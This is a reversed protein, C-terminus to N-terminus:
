KAEDKQKQSLSVKREYNEMALKIRKKKATKMRSPSMKKNRWMICITVIYISIKYLNIVFIWSM